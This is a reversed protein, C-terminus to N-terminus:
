VDDVGNFGSGIWLTLLGCALLAAALPSDSRWRQLADVAGAIDISHALVTLGAIAGVVVIAAVFIRALRLTKADDVDERRGRLAVDNTFMTGLCMFQSDLSSMIAALIGATVIGGM